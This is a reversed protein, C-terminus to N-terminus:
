KVIIRRTEHFEKYVKDVSIKEEKCLRELEKEDEIFFVKITQYKKTANKFLKFQPNKDHTRIDLKAQSVEKEEVELFNDNRTELVDYLMEDYEKSIDEDTISQEEKEDEVQEKPLTAEIPIEMIDDEEENIVVENEDENHYTIFVDFHCEIGQNVIEQCSFNACVIEDIKFNKDRFVVTFPVMESFSFEEEMSDKIYTGEIKINGNLTGEVIEYDVVNCDISVLSTLKKLKVTADCNIKLEM